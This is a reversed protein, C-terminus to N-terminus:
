SEAKLFYETDLLENIQILNKKEHYYFNLNYDEVLTESFYVEEVKTRFITVTHKEFVNTGV